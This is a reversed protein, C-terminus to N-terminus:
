IEDLKVAVTPENEREKAIRALDADELQEMLAEWTKAPVCCFVPEGNELIAVPSGNGKQVTELPSNKLETITHKELKM